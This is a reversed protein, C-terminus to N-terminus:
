TRASKPEVRKLHQARRAQLIPDKYMAEWEGWDQPVPGWDFEPERSRGSAIFSTM